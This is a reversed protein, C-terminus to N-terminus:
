PILDRNKLTETLWEAVYSYTIPTPHTDPFSFKNEKLLELLIERKNNDHLYDIVIYEKKKNFFEYLNPVADASFPFFLFIMQVKPFKKSLNERTKTLLLHLLEFDKEGFSTPYDIKMSQLLISAFNSKYLLGFIFCSLPKAQGFDGLYELRGNNLEICPLKKGWKGIISWSGVLRRLHNEIFTYIVITPLNKIDDAFDPELTALYIDQPAGGPLGYNYAACYPNRM